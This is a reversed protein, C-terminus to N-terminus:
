QKAEVPVNIRHAAGTGFDIQDPGVPTEHDLKVAIGVVRRPPCKDAVPVTVILKREATIGHKPERVVFNQL